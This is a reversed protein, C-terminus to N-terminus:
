EFVPDVAKYSLVRGEVRFRHSIGRDDLLERIERDVLEANPLSSWFSFVLAHGDRKELHIRVFGPLGALAEGFGDVVYAPLGQFSLRYQLGEGPMNEAQLDDVMDQAMEVGLPFVHALVADVAMRDSPVRGRRFRHHPMFVDESRSSIAKGDSLRVADLSLRVEGIVPSELREVRVLIAYDATGHVAALAEKRTKNPIRREEEVVDFRFDDRFIGAVTETLLAFDPMVPSISELEDDLGLVVVRPHGSLKMLIELAEAHNRIRGANVNARLKVVHTGSPNEEESLIEYDTVYGQAHTTIDDRVWKMGQVQTTAQVDVGSAQAVAQRLGDQVALAFSTGHGETAVERALASGGMVMLVFLVHCVNKLM